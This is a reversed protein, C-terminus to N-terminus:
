RDIRSIHGWWITWHGSSLWCYTEATDSSFSMKVLGAAIHFHNDPTLKKFGTLFIGNGDHHFKDGVASCSVSNSAQPPLHQSIWCSVSSSERIGFSYNRPFREIYSQVEEESLLALGFLHPFLLYGLGLPSVVPHPAVRPLPHLGGMDVLSWSFGNRGCNGAVTSLRM